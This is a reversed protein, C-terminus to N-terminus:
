EACPVLECFREAIECELPHPHGFVIGNDLQRRIAQDVVPHRHGLTVPGLANRFDIYERGRDDWVRCGDARVIVEPEDPQLTPVKSATSSGMPMVAAF